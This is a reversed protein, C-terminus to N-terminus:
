HVLLIQLLVLVDLVQILIIPDIFILTDNQQTYYQIVKRDTFFAKIYGPTHTAQNADDENTTNKM